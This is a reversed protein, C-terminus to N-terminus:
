SYVGMTHVGILGEKNRWGLIWLYEKTEILVKYVSIKNTNSLEEVIKIIDIYDGLSDWIECTEEIIDSEPVKIKRSFFTKYCKEQKKSEYFVIIFPEDSETTYYYSKVKEIISLPLWNPLSDSPFKVLLRQNPEIYNSTKDLFTLYTDEM